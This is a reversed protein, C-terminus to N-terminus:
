KIGKIVSDFSEDRWQVCSNGYEYADRTKEWNKIKEPPKFRKDGTPSEAFPIGLFSFVSRGPEVEESKGRIKGSKIRITTDSEEHESPEVLDTSTMKKETVSASSTFHPPSQSIKSALWTSTTVTTLTSIEPRYPVDDAEIRTTTSGSEIDNTVNSKEASGGNRKKGSSRERNLRRRNRGSLRRGHKSSLETAFLGLYFVLILLFLCFSNRLM